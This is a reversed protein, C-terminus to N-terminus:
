ATQRTSWSRRVTIFSAKNLHSFCSTQAMEEPAGVAQAAGDRDLRRREDTGTFASRADRDRDVPAVVNVAGPGAAELAASKTLGEVAHQQRTALCWGEPGATPLRCM